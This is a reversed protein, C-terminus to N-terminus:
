DIGRAIKRLFVHRDRNENGWHFGFFIVTTGDDKKKVIKELQFKEDRLSRFHVYEWTFHRPSDILLMELAIRTFGASIRVVKPRRPPGLVAPRREARLEPFVARISRLCTEISEEHLKVYSYM